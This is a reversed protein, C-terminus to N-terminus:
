TARRRASVPTGRFFRDRRSLTSSPLSTEPNASTAIAEARTSTAIIPSLQTASSDPASVAM